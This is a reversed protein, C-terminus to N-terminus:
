DQGGETVAEAALGAAAELLAADLDLQIGHDGTDVGAPELDPVSVPAASPDLGHRLDPGGADGGGWEPLHDGVLGPGLDVTRTAHVDLLVEGERPVGLDEEDAVHDVELAVRAHCLQGDLAPTVGGPRDDPAELPARLLGGEDV